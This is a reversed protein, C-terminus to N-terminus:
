TFRYYLSVELDSSLDVGIEASYDNIISNYEMFYDNEPESLIKRIDPPIVFGIEWKLNRVRELRHTVYALLYRRNRSICQHYYILTGRVANPLNDVAGLAAFSRMVMSIDVM